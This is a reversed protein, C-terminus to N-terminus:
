RARPMSRARARTARPRSAATRCRTPASPRCRTSRSAASSSSAPRACRWRCTARSSAPRSATGRGNALAIAEDLTDYPNVVVVPGFVEDCSVKVDPPTDAILTPRLLDGDLEGGTLIRAGRSRAEEIWELVRDRAGEDILPGVDTEDDAPDGVNLAEVKATLLELFEEHRGRPVYVRQVSICSQGAFLYGGEAVKAAVDDLDATEDAIVPTSNGLELTVKKRPARERLKWGVDGSGTFTILKVREDEVLM